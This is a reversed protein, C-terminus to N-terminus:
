KLPLVELGHRHFEDLLGELESALFVSTTWQHRFSDIYAEPLQGAYNRCFIPLVGHSEAMLLLHQWDISDPVIAESDRLTALLFEAEPTMKDVPYRYQSPSFPRSDM